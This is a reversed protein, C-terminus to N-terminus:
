VLGVRLLPCRVIFHIHHHHHNVVMGTHACTDAMQIAMKGFPSIYRETREHRAEEWEKLAQKIPQTDQEAYIKGFERVALEERRLDLPLVGAEVELAELSATAPVGLCMALGRRQVRDLIECKGSQWVSAAYELQPVVISKYLTVM